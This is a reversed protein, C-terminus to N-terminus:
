TAAETAADGAAESASEGEVWIAILIGLATVESLPGPEVILGPLAAIVVVISLGIKALTSGGEDSEESEESM